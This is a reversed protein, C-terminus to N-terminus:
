AKLQKWRWRHRSNIRLREEKEDWRCGDKRKMKQVCIGSLGTTRFDPTVAHNLEDPEVLSNWNVYGDNYVPDFNKVYDHPGTITVIACYDPASNGVPDYYNVADWDIRVTMTQPVIGHPSILQWNGAYSFPLDTYGDGGGEMDYLFQKGAPVTFDEPAWAEVMGLPMQFVEEYSAAVYNSVAYYAVTNGLVDDPTIDDVSVDYETRMLWSSQSQIRPLSHGVSLRVLRYYFGSSNEVAMSITNSSGEAYCMGADAQRFWYGKTLNTCIEVGYVFNTSNVYSVKVEDSAASFHIGSVWFDAANSATGVLLVAAAALVFFSRLSKM